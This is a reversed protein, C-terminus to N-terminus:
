PLGQGIKNTPGLKILASRLEELQVPKSIYDDMGASLCRERDGELAYATIAIIKPGNPWRAHIKKAAELGDMEPMQIDMLIVDYHQRELAQLVELGNAAVDAEYGIKKLIQLVVKQNIANDEALLIRLPYLICFEPITTSHTRAKPIDKKKALADALITFHFTSGKGKESEAWIRGGMLEALKKSIALGLGTGGYKRTTSADVQSFSRFLQGMKDRPIGIGTDKITFHIEHNSGNLVRSSVSIVVEGKETFKVANSLLNVLIQRLRAPDGIITEPTITDVVYALNLGKESASPAVLDLSDEICSRLDFSQRELEMKGSDIKSFDLISNIVSLLSDGSSRITNIYDYQEKTLDTGLLLGTLGIVANMPTRIEHSMNALFEAKARAASEAADKAQRLEDEAHRRAIAGGISAAAAQLISVDNGSWLRESHCDAFGIFGWFKCEISIPIALISVIKQADLAIREQEPFDSVLGKIPHGESLTEYWSSMSPDWSFNQLSSHDMWSVITDGVWEYRLSALHENIESDHNEFIYVWDLKAAACLLELTQNIASDLDTETLLINTAIAVGGLLIDKNRLEEEAQIRETIDASVGVLGIRESNINNVISFTYSAQFTTGDKRKVPFEGEYHGVEKVKAMADLMINIMNEPVITESINKGIIEKATWQYLKEAFKNWYTINGYLDTTIVANYVQSLLSAQFLIKDEALKRETIETLFNLTAPRGEWSILVASIELWKVAGDRDIIRFAYLQPANEGQLRRLHNEVVMERDVPHIFDGFPRSMLETESYGMVKTFKPNAFKVRGDQAVLISENANDFLLRYKEESARLADEVRKRKTIDQVTGDYHTGNEDQVIMANMSVWFRAGDRRQVELEFGELFGQELLLNIAKDRDQPNAYLQHSIDVISAIMEEPNDYGFLRAFAPNVSLYRGDPTSQFIGLISNEFINQYKEQSRTLDKEVQKFGTIDRIFEIAGIKNGSSDFLPAAKGWFYAGRKRFSSIYVEGSISTGNWQVNRYEAEIKANSALVLDVLIPRRCGYFPLAYEYNGKGLIDMAKIGSLNEMAKNWAIVRGELDVALIADPIFDMIEALRISEMDAIPGSSDFPIEIKRDNNDDSM